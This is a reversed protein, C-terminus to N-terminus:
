HFQSNLPKDFIYNKKPLFSHTITIPENLLYFERFLELDFHACIICSFIELIAVARM